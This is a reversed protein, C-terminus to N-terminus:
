EGTTITRVTGGDIAYLVKGFGYGGHTGNDFEEGKAYRTGICGQVAGAGAVSGCNGVGIVYYKDGGCFRGICGGVVARNNLVTNNIEYAKTGHGIVEGYNFCKLIYFKEPDYATTGFHGKVEGFIGGTGTSTQTEIRGRNICGSVIGSEASAGGTAHDGIWLRGIIGGTFYVFSDSGVNSKQYINGENVCDVIAVDGTLGYVIPTLGSVHQGYIDGHNVCGDLTMSKVYYLYGILGGRKSGLIPEDAYGVNVYNECDKVTLTGFAGSGGYTGKESDHSAYNRGIVGGATVVLTIVSTTDPSGVTCNEVTVSGGAFGILGGVSDPKLKQINEDSSAEKFTKFDFTFTSLTVNKVTANATAGFLGYHFETEDTPVTVGIDALVYASDQFEIAQLFTNGNLRAITHHGGDFTGKFAHELKKSNLGRNDFGIPIWLNNQLDVDATLKVYGKEFTAAHLYVDRAFYALGEATSIHVVKEYTTGDVTKEAQEVYGEPATPLTETGWLAALYATWESASAARLSPQTQETVSRALAGNTDTDVTAQKGLIATPLCLAACILAAVAGITWMRLRKTM